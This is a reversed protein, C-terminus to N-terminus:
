RRNHATCVCGPCSEPLLIHSLRHRVTYIGSKPPMTTAHRCCSIYNWSLFSPCAIIARLSTAAVLSATPCAPALLLAQVEAPVDSHDSCRLPLLAQSRVGTRGIMGTHKPRLMSIGPGGQTPEPAKNREM